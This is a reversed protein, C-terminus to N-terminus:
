SPPGQRERTGVWTLNRGLPHRLDVHGALTDVEQGDILIQVHKVAPLNVTLTNVIAYVAFLEDLSGGHHNAVAEQSLDVFADGTDTIFIQRITTGEAIAQAYPAPPPQLQALLLQRAQEVNTAGYPVNADLAELSLGDEATYFLTARIRRGDDATATSGIPVVTTEPALWVPLYFWATLGLGILLALGLALVFWRM